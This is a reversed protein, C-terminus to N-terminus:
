WEAQKGHYRGEAEGENMSIMTGLGYAFCIEGLFLPVNSYSSVADVIARVDLSLETKGYTLSRNSGAHNGSEVIAGPRSATYASM